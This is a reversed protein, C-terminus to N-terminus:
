SKCCPNKITRKKIGSGIKKPKTQTKHGTNKMTVTPLKTNAATKNASKVKEKKPNDKVLTGHDWEQESIINGNKDSIKSYGHKKGNSYICFFKRDEIDISAFPGDKVGNVWFGTTLNGNQDSYKGYGHQKGNVFLGEYFNRKEFMYVGVGNVCDGSMCGQKQQAFLFSNFIFFYAIFLSSSKM